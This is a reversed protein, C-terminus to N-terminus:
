ENEGDEEDEADEGDDDDDDDDEDDDEDEEETSSNAPAEKDELFGRRYRRVRDDLNWLRIGMERKRKNQITYRERVLDLFKQKGKEYKKPDTECRVQGKLEGLEEVYAMDDEAIDFGMCVPCAQDM